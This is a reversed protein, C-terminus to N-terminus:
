DAHPSIPQQGFYVKVQGYQDDWEEFWGTRQFGNGFTITLPCELLYLPPRGNISPYFMVKPTDNLFSVNSVRAAGSSLGLANPINATADVLTSPDKCHSPIKYNTGTQQTPASPTGGAASSNASAAHSPEYSGGYGGDPKEWAGFHFNEDVHGDDWSVSITCDIRYRGNGIARAHADGIPVIGLVKPGDSPIHLLQPIASLEMVNAMPARCNEPIGQAWSLAPAALLGAIWLRNM